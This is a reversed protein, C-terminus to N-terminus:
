SKNCKESFAKGFFIKHDFQRFQLTNEKEKINEPKKPKKPKKPVFKTRQKDIKLIKFILYGFAGIGLLALATKGL